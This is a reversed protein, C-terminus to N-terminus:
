EDPVNEIVRCPGNWCGEEDKNTTPRHYDILDGTKYEHAGDPTTKAKLARKTKAVATAQTIAEIAVERIRQGRQTDSLEGTKPFDLNELDPLCAPQRGTYAKYPSM